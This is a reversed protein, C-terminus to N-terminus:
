WDRKKLFEEEETNKLRYSHIDDTWDRNRIIGLGIRRLTEHRQYIKYLDEKGLRNTYKTWTKLDAFTEPLITQKKTFPKMNRLKAENAAVYNEMLESLKAGKRKNELAITGCFRKYLEPDTHFSVPKVM